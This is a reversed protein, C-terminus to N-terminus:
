SSFPADILILIQCARCRSRAYYGPVAAAGTADTQGDEIGPKAPPRPPDPIFSGEM